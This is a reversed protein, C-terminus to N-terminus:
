LHIFHHLHACEIHVCMHKLYFLRARAYPHSFSTHLIAHWSALVCARFTSPIYLHHPTDIYAHSHSLPADNSGREVCSDRFTYKPFVPPLHRMSPDGGGQAKLMMHSLYPPHPTDMRLIAGYEIATYSGPGIHPLLALHTSPDHSM